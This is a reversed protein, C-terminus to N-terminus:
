VDCFTISLARQVDDAWRNSYYDTTSDDACYLSAADGGRGGNGGGCGGGGLGLTLLSPVAAPGSEPNGKPACFCMEMLMAEAAPHAAAGLLCWRWRVVWGAVADALM